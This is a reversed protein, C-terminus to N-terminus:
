KNKNIYSVCDGQNKFTSGDPRTLTMWGGNKCQNANTPANVATVTFKVSPQLGTWCSGDRRFVGFGAAGSDCYYGAIPTNWYVDTPDPNIGVSPPNTGSLGVNLLDYPCMEVTTTCASAGIPQYGYNTTNFTIGYIVQDPVTLGGVNFVIPTALGSRCATGDFWKGANEGTCNVNDASPRYPIAFTQTVSKLLTGVAGDAGVNYINLTIPHSFTAGPTTTCNGTPYYIGSECAFSSMIQEVKTLNRGTGAAFQIRDGFENVQASEFAISQVNGPLPSPISNYVIIDQAFIQTAGITATFLFAATMILTFLAAAFINKIRM